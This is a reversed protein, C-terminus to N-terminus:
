FLNLYNNKIDQYSNEMKKKFEPQLRQSYWNIDQRKHFKIILENKDTIFLYSEELCQSINKWGGQCKLNNERVKKFLDSNRNEKDIGQHIAVITKTCDITKCNKVSSDLIKQDAIIAPISFRHDINNLLSTKSHIFYDIGCPVHMQTSDLIKKLTYKENIHEPTNLQNNYNEWDLRQGVLVFEKEKFKEKFSLLTQVLSSNYLIDGNSWMIFDEETAYENAIRFMESILPFKLFKKYDKRNIIQYKKCLSEVGEEDGVIVLKINIINSYKHNIFQINKIFNEQLYLTNDDIIPKFTSVIVLKM